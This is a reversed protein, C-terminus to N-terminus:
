EGITAYQYCASVARMQLRKGASFYVLSLPELVVDHDAVTRNAVDIFRTALPKKSRSVIAAIIEGSGSSRNRAFADVVPFGPTSGNPVQHWGSTMDDWANRIWVQFANPNRSNHCTQVRNSKIPHEKGLADKKPDVMLTGRAMAARAIGTGIVRATRTWMMDCWTAQKRTRITNAAIARRPKDPSPIPVWDPELGSPDSPLPDFDTPDSYEAPNDRNWMFSKQSMPDGVEGAYADPTTWAGLATDYNRVGQITNSGDTIGDPLMPNMVFGGGGGNGIAGVRALATASVVAAFTIVILFPYLADHDNL